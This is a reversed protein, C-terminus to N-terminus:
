CTGCKSLRDVIEKALDYFQKAKKIQNFYTYSEAARLYNEAEMLDKFCPNDCSNKFGDKGIIQIYLHHISKKILDTKLYYYEKNFSDPSAKLKIHYIGDPLEIYDCEDGCGMNLDLADFCTTQNKNFEYNVSKPRGPTTIEIVAPLEKAIGWCSNDEICLNYIDSSINFDIKIKGGM